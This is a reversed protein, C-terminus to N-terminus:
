ARFVFARLDLAGDGRPVLYVAHVGEVPGASPVAESRADEESGATPVAAEGRVGEATSVAGEDRVGTVSDALPVAAGDQAAEVLRGLPAAVWAWTDDCSVPVRALEPGNPADLHLVVEGQLTGRVELEVSRESGCFGLYKYGLEAGDRLNYVYAYASTAAGADAKQAVYPHADNWTVHSSYHLIGEASRLHCCCYAPTERLAPLPGGNLGCSTMEAQEIFGDDRVRLPEAVGQRSNQHGHTHRHGFVYVQGGLEIISGHNNGLYYTAQEETEVGPLGVDGNSHLVGGFTLPGVPSEAWAWCLEHGQLSSYVFYYRGRICRFSSAEFFPHGEFGTGDAQLKAPALRRPEEAMTLMDPELRAVWSGETAATGFRPNVVPMGFGWYVWAQGDEVYCAPDFVMGYGADSDLEVGSSLAVNGLFRYRGAPEDCVAVGIHSPKGQLMSALAYYLYYRGDPGQAVDPAFLPASGDVNSPDDTKRFIVGEYRWDALDDEPASWCVYDGPCYSAGDAVDHSGYVYVRGGFLHPEGDPVYEWSPLYPNYVVRSM